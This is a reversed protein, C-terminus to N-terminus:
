KICNNIKNDPEESLYWIMKVSYPILMKYRHTDNKNSLHIIQCHNLSM